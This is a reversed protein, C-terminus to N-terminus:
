LNVSPIRRLLADTERIIERHLRLILEKTAQIYRSLDPSLDAPLEDEDLTHVRLEPDVLIDIVLDRWIFETQHLSVRDAINFYYAREKGQNLLWVYITYPRDTWYLAYTVDGTNLKIGNVVNNRSLVYKLVGFNDTLHVLECEYSKEKGSLTLKKEICTQL